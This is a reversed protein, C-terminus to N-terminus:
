QLVKERPLKYNLKNKYSFRTKNPCSPLRQTYKYRKTLKRRASRIDRTWWSEGKIHKHGRRSWNSIRMEIHLPTLATTGGSRDPTDPRTSWELNVQTSLKIKNKKDKASGWIQNPSQRVEWQKCLLPMLSHHSLRRFTNSKNRIRDPCGRKRKGIQGRSVLVM